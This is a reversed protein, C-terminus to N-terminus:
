FSFFSTRSLKKVLDIVLKVTKEATAQTHVIVIVGKAVTMNQVIVGMRALIRFVHINVGQYHLVM